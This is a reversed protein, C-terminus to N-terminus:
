PLLNLGSCGEEGRTRLALELEYLTATRAQSLYPESGAFLDAGGAIPLSVVFRTRGPQSEVDVRGGNIRAMQDAVSLGLGSGSAAGSGDKTYWPTFIHPLDRPAIGPGDDEVSVFASEGQGVTVLIRGGAFKIANSFLNLLVREIQLTNCRVIPHEEIQLCLELPAHQCVVPRVQEMLTCVLEALDVNSGTSSLAAADMSFAVGNLIRQIHQASRRIIQLYPQQASPVHAALLDACSGISAIPTALDHLAMAYSPDISGQTTPSLFAAVAKLASGEYVPLMTLSLKEEGSNLTIACPRMLRLASPVTLWLISPFQEPLPLGGVLTPLQQATAGNWDLPTLEPDLLIQPIPSSQMEEQFARLLRM